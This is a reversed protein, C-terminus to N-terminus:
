TQSIPSIRESKYLIDYSDRIIKDVLDRSELQGEKYLEDFSRDRNKKYNLKIEKYKTCNHM